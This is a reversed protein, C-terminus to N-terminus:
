PREGCDAIREEALLQDLLKLEEERHRRLVDGHAHELKRKLDNFRKVVVPESRGFEHAIEKFLGGEVLRMRVLEVDQERSWRWSGRNM